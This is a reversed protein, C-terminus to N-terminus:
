LRNLIRNISIKSLIWNNFIINLYFEIYNATLFDSKKLSIIIIGMFYEFCFYEKSKKYKFPSRTVTFYNKKKKLFSFQFKTKLNLNTIIKFIFIIISNFIVWNPIIIKLCYMYNLRIPKRIFFFMSNFGVYTILLKKTLRSYHSHLYLIKNFNNQNLFFFVLHLLKKTLLSYCNFNTKNLLM